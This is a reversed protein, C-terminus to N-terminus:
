VAWHGRLDTLWM